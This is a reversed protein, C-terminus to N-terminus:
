ILRGHEHHTLVLTARIIDTLKSPSLTTHKLATWRCTLLAFGREGLCRLARQLQNYTRNDTHLETTGAEHKYPTHIGHGAGQYGPDALIPLTEAKPYCAPFLHERAAPLDTLHGPEAPSTWIPFGDPEFLAQVNGGFGSTKGSYWADITKGHSNTTKHRCASTAFIKGDCILYPLEDALATDLVAHLDPARAALVDIAEHLYRYATAQSIGFSRGHLRLGPRSRFWALAFIAQKWCTLARTGRRTGRARREERLLGTLFVVLARSVDLTARYTIM